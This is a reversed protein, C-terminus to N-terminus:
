SDFSIGREKFVELIVELDYKTSDPNDKWDDLMELPTRTDEKSVGGNYELDELHAIYEESKSVVKYVPSTMVVVNKFGRRELKDKESYEDCIVADEGHVDKFLKYVENAVEPSKPSAYYGGADIAREMVMQAVEGSPFVEELLESTNRALDWTDVSKRDRNLPLYEPRFDYSYRAGTINCVFLGGVYLKGPIDKFVRGKKGELVEGVDTQLYLCDHIIEEKLSDDVGSILFTLDKNEPLDTENIVLVERDFDEDYEFAPTWLKDGNKIIVEYGLRLLVCVGIKYGEGKGGVSNVDERKSSEGILLTAPSLQVGKSTFEITDSTLDYEFPAESDLCNQCFERIANAATWDNVNTKVMSLNYKKVGSGV